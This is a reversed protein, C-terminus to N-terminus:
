FHSSHNLFAATAEVPPHEGVALWRQQADTIAARVSCLSFLDCSHVGPSERKKLLLVLPPFFKALSSFLSLSPHPVGDIALQILGAARAPQVEAVVAHVLNAGGGEREGRGEEM